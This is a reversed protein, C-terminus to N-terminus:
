SKLAPLVIVKVGNTIGCDSLQQMEDDISIPNYQAV